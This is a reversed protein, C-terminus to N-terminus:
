GRRWGGKRLWRRSPLAVARWMRVPLPKPRPAPVPREAYDLVLRCALELLEQEQVPRSSSPRDDLTPLLDALDGVVAVETARLQEVATESLAKVESHWTTPVTIRPSSGLRALTREAFVRKIRHEYQPWSLTAFDGNLRRLLEAEVVGLSTNRSELDLDYGLNPLGTAAAFRRWLEQPDADPPPVTVLSVHEPGVAECWRRVVDPVRQAAWFGGTFEETQRQSLVSELFDAYTQQNRNKIREQWVAPLQRGLDRATVVVRIDAPGFSAVAQRIRDPSTRALTEHSIVASGPYARVEQALRDWAGTVGDYEHGQFTAGRLDLSAYFHSAPRDGPYLVGHKALLERHAFLVRQLFTTGTKAVGVHLHVTRSM